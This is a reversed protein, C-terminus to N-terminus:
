QDLKKLKKNIWFKMAQLAAIKEEKTDYTSILDKLVSTTGDESM